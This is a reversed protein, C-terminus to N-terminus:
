LLSSVPKCLLDYTFAAASTKTTASVANTVRHIHGTVIIAGTQVNGVTLQKEGRFSIDANDVSEIKAVYGGFTVTHDALNVVFGIKDVPEPQADTMTMTGNCLLSLVPTEAAQADPWALSISLTLMAQLLMACHRM